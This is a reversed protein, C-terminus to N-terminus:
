LRDSEGEEVSEVVVAETAIVKPSTVDLIGGGAKVVELELFDFQQALARRLENIVLAHEPSTSECMRFIVVIADLVKQLYKLKYDIIARQIDEQSASFFIDHMAKYDQALATELKNAIDQLKVFANYNGTKDMGSKTEPDYDYEGTLREKDLEDIREKIALYRDARGKMISQIGSIFDVNQDFIKTIMDQVEPKVHEKIALVKAVNDNVRYHREFHRRVDSIKAGIETAIEDYTKHHVARLLNIDNQRSSKCIACIPSQSLSRGYALCSETEAM